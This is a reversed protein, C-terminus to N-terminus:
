DRLSPGPCPASGPHPGSGPYPVPKPSANAVISVKVLRRVAFRIASCLVKVIKWILMLVAVLVFVNAALNVAFERPEALPNMPDWAVAGLM